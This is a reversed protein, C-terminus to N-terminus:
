SFFRFDGPLSMKVFFVSLPVDVSEMMDRIRASILSCGPLALEDEDLQLM